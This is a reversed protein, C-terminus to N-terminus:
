FLYRNVYFKTNKYYRPAQTNNYYNNGIIILCKPKLTTLFKRIYTYEYGNYPPWAFVFMTQTYDQNSQSLASIYDTVKKYFCEKTVDYFKYGLTNWEYM